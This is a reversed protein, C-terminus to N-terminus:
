TGSNALDEGYPLHAQRGLVNGNADLIMRVSLRDSLFYRTAGAEIKAVIRNGVYINDVLSAGTSSNHEALVQSGQWVYHTSTQGAVKKWRRNQYDYSYQATTGGDVSVLRNESDYIYSHAGDNIVNGVADYSYNATPSQNAVTTIRNTPAGGSQELTIAQIQTGSSLADWVGTRNGWRDYSFRRQVSVGNSAQNSTALRRLLDYTFTANEAVGNITGSITILQGSNGATTGAGNQGASAQYGYTLSLLTNGSKTATQSTLQLRQSNYEYNEVVGNGLTMGKIQGAVNYNMNTLYGTLESMRVIFDHGAVVARTSPYTLQTIQSAQNYQYGTTYTRTGLTQIVSSVRKYSDFTYREQYESGVNVRVIMGHASTGYTGDNDYTYTVAPATTVGSVTNYSISNVRHLADYGYSTIVGRADQKTSVASFETYTYKTSWYAGTGDSITPSQEPIREYLLRGLADYKYSRMQNGQNVLMLKDLLNYSYTTQQALAGTSDQETVKILRGLGDSERKIKRGVQDTVIVSSGNYDSRVTNGDALTTIVARNAIDYQFTTSPGPTGGATFPNTRSIIRGMVDYATNVQANNAGVSQIVRGWGDYQVTSTVTKQVGGDDYTVTSASSLAGYDMIIQSGAGTPLTFSAPQFMANYGVNTVLSAANTHSKALSTNFDYDTSTTQHVGYPDGSMVEESQSWYTAETNTLDKEQCCSVQAKVVNGFIDIKSLHQIVTPTPTNFDAWETVGTVKGILGFYSFHGPVNVNGGYNEVGGMAIFNDYDYSTKAIVVDDSDFTNEGADFLEVL